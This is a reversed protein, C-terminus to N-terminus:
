ADSVEKVLRDLVAFVGMLDAEGVTVMNVPQWCCVPDGDADAQYAGCCEEYVNSTLASRANEIQERFEALMHEVMTKDAM